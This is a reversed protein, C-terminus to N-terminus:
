PQYPTPGVCSVEGHLVARVRIGRPIRSVAERKYEVFFFFFRLHESFFM